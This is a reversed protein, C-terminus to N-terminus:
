GLVRPPEASVPAAGSCVLRCSETYSPSAVVLPLLSAGQRAWADFLVDHCAACACIAPSLMSEAGKMQAEPRGVPRVPGEVKVMAWGAAAAGIVWFKGGVGVLRVEKEFLQLEAQSPQAMRVLKLAVEDYEHMIAKYVVSNGGEGIRIRKGESTRAIRM